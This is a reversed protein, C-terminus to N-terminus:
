TSSAQILRQFLGIMAKEKFAMYITEVLKEPSCIEMASFTMVMAM